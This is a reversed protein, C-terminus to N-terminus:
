KSFRKIYRVSKPQKECVFGETDSYGKFEYEYEDGTWTMFSGDEGMTAVGVDFGNEMILYLVFYRNNCEPTPTKAVFWQKIPLYSYQSKGSLEKLAKSIEKLVTTETSVKKKKTIKKKM